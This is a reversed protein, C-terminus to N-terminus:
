KILCVFLGFAIVAVIVAVVMKPEKGERKKSDSFEKFCEIFDKDELLANLKFINSHQKGVYRVNAKLAEFDEKMENFEETIAEDWWKWVHFNGDEPDKYLDGVRNHECVYFRRGRKTITHSMVISTKGGCFCRTPIGHLGHRRGTSNDTSRFATNNSLAM